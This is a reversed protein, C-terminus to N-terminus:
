WRPMVRNPTTPEEQGALGAEVRWLRVAKLEDELGRVKFIM